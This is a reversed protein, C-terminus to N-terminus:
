LQRLLRLPEGLSHDGVAVGGGEGGLVGVVEEVEAHDAIEPGIGSSKEPIKRRNGILIFPYEATFGPAPGGEAPASWLRFQSGSTSKTM